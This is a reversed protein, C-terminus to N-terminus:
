ILHDTRLKYPASDKDQIDAAIGHIHDACPKAVVQPEVVVRDECLGGPDRHAPFEGHQGDVDKVWAIELACAVLGQPCAKVNHKLMSKVHKPTLKLAM